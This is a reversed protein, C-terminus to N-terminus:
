RVIRQISQAPRELDARRMATELFSTNYVVEIIEVINEGDTSFSQLRDRM